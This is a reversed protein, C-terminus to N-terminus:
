VIQPETCVWGKRSRARELTNGSSRLRNDKSSKIIMLATWYTWVSHHNDLLYWMQPGPEVWPFGLFRQVVLFKLRVTWPHEDCNRVSFHLNSFEEGRPVQPRHPAINQCTLKQWFECAMPDKPQKKGLKSYIDLPHLYCWRQNRLARKKLKLM